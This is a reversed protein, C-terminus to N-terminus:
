ENLRVVCACVASVFSSRVTVKKMSLQIFVIFATKKTEREREREKDLVCVILNRSPPFVFLPLPGSNFFFGVPPLPIWGAVSFLPLSRGGGESGCAAAAHRRDYLLTEEGTTRGSKTKTSARGPCLSTARMARKQRGGEKRTQRTSDTHWILHGRRGLPLGGRKGGKREM